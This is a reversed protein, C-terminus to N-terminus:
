VYDVPIPETKINEPQIIITSTHDPDSPQCYYVEMITGDEQQIIEHVQYQDLVGALDETTTVQEVLQDQDQDQDQDQEPDMDQVNQNELKLHYTAARIEAQQQQQEQQQQQTNHHHLHNTSHKRRRGRKSNTNTNTNNNNLKSEPVLFDGGVSLAEVMLEAGVQGATHRGKEGEVESRFPVEQIPLTHRVANYINRLQEELQILYEESDTRVVLDTVERVLAACRYQLISKGELRMEQKVKYMANQIDSSTPNYRRYMSPPPEECPFLEERVFDAIAEQMMKVTTVGQRTLEYMKTLVRPDVPEKTRFKVSPSQRKRKIEEGEPEAIPQKIVKSVSEELCEEVTNSAVEQKVMGLVPHGEHTTPDPLRVYYWSERPFRAGQRRFCTIMRKKALKRMHDTPLSNIALLASPVKHQPFKMIHTIYIEAPCDVKKSVQSRNRSKPTVGSEQQERIKRMQYKEKHGKNTDHGQHCMLVWRGVHMFPVGDYEIPVGCKGTHSWYHIRGREVNPLYSENGFQKDRNYKIFHTVTEEQYQEVCAVAEQLNKFRRVKFPKASGSRPEKKIDKAYEHMM